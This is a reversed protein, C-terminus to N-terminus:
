FKTIFFFSPNQLFLFFLIKLLVPSVPDNDGCRALRSNASGKDEIDTRLHAIGTDAAKGRQGQLPGAPRGAVNTRLDCPGWAFVRSRYEAETYM